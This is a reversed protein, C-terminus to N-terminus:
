SGHKVELKRIVADRLEIFNKLSRITELASILEACPCNTPKTSVPCERASTMKHYTGCKHCFQEDLFM